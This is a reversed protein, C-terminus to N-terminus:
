VQITYVTMENGTVGFIFKDTSANKLMATIIATGSNYNTLDFRNVVVATM